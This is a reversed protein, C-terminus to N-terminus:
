PSGAFRACDGPAQTNVFRTRMALMVGYFYMSIWPLASRRPTPALPPKGARGIQRYHRVPAGAAWCPLM